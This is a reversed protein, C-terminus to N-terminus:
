ADFDKVEALFLKMVFELGYVDFGSVRALFLEVVLELGFVDLLLFCQSWCTFTWLLTHKACQICGVARFERVLVGIWM